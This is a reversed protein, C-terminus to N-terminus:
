SPGNAKGHAVIKTPIAGIDHALCAQVRGNGKGALRSTRVVPFHSNIRRDAEQKMALAIEAERREFKSQKTEVPAANRGSTM